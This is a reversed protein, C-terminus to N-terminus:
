DHFKGKALSIVRYNKVLDPATFAEIAPYLNKSKLATLIAQLAKVLTANLDPIARATVQYPIPIENNIKNIKNM